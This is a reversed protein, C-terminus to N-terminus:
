PISKSSTTSKSNISAPSIDTKHNLIYHSKAKNRRSTYSKVHSVFLMSKKKGGLKIATEAM